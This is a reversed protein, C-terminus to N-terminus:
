AAGELLIHSSPLTNTQSLAWGNGPGSMKIYTPMLCHLTWSSWLVHVPKGQILMTKNPNKKRHSYPQEKWAGRLHPVFLNRCAPACTAASSPFHRQLMAVSPNALLQFRLHHLPPTLQTVSNERRRKSTITLAFSPPVWGM